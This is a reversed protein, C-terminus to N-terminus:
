KILTKNENMQLPPHTDNQHYLEFGSYEIVLTFFRNTKIKPECKKEECNYYIRLDYLHHLKSKIFENQKIQAERFFIVFNEEDPLTNGSYDLIHFKVSIDLDIDVKPDYKNNPTLLSSNLNRSYEVTYKDNYTYDLIYAISIFAM